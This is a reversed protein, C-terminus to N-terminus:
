KDWRAHHLHYNNESHSFLHIFPYQWIGYIQCLAKKEAQDQKDSGDPDHLIPRTKNYCVGLIM